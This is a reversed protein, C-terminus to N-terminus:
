PQRKKLSYAFATGYFHDDNIQNYNNTKHKRNIAMNKGHNRPTKTM